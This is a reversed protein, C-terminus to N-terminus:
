VAGTLNGPKPVIAGALKVFRKPRGSTSQSYTEIMGMEELHELVEDRERRKMSQM